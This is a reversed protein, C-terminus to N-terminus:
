DDFLSRAGTRRREQELAKKLKPWTQEDYGSDDALWSQLLGILGAAPASELKLEALRELGAAIEATHKDASRSRTSGRRSQKSSLSGKKM